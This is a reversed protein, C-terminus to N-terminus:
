DTLTTFFSHSQRYYAQCEVPLPIYYALPGFRKPRKLPPSELLIVTLGSVTLTETERSHFTCRADPRGKNEEQIINGGCTPEKQYASGGYLLRYVGRDSEHLLHIADKNQGAEM